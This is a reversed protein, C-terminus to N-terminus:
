VGFCCMTGYKTQVIVVYEEVNSYWCNQQNIYLIYVSNSCDSCVKIQSSYCACQVSGLSQIGFTYWLLYQCYKLRYKLWVQVSIVLGYDCIREPLIFNQLLSSM